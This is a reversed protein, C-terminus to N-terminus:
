RIILVIGLLAFLSGLHIRLIEFLLPRQALLILGISPRHPLRRVRGLRSGCLWRLVPRGRNKHKPVLM